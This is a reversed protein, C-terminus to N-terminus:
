NIYLRFLDSNTITFINEEHVCFGDDRWQTNLPVPFLISKLIEYIETLEVVLITLM